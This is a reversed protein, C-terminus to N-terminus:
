FFSCFSLFFVFKPLLGPVLRRPDSEVFVDFFMIFFFFSFAFGGSSHEDFGQQQGFRKEEFLFLL